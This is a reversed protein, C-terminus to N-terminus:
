TGGPLSGPGLPVVAAAAGFGAAGGTLPSRPRASVFGLSLLLSFFCILIIRAGSCLPSLPSRLLAPAPPLSPSDTRVPLSPSGAALLNIVPQLFIVLDLPACDIFDGKNLGKCGAADEGFPSVIEGRIPGAGAEKTICVCLCVFFFFFFDAEARLSGDVKKKKKKGETNKNILESRFCVM